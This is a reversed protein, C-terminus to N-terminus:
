AAPALVRAAVFMLSASPAGHMRWSATQRIHESGVLGLQALM